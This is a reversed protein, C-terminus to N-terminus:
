RSGGEIKFGNKRFERVERALMKVGDAMEILGCAGLFGYIVFLILAWTPM